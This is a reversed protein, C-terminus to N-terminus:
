LSAIKVKANLGLITRIYAKVGLVLVQREMAVIFCRIRRFPYLIRVMMENATRGSSVVSIKLKRFRSYPFKNSM